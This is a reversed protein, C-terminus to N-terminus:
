LHNTLRLILDSKKGSVPLGAQRLQEKLEVVTLSQLNNMKIISKKKTKITGEESEETPVIITGEDSRVVEQPINDKTHKKKTRNAGEDSSRKRVFASRQSLEAGRVFEDNYYDVDDDDDENNNKELLQIVKWEKTRDDVVISYNEFLRDLIADALKYQKNKRHITRDSLLKTITSKLTTSMTHTPHDLPALPSPVYQEEEKLVVATKEEKVNENNDSSSSSKNNVMGVVSWERYKDDVKVNYRYKLKDSIEDAIHYERKKKAYSRDEVLQSVIRVDNESLNCINGRRIYQQTRGFHSKGDIRYEKRHDHLYIGCTNLATLIKDAHTYNRQRKYQMRKSILEHIQEETLKSNSPLPGSDSAQQYDHHHHHYANNQLQVNNCRIHHYVVINNHNPYTTFASCGVSITAVLVLIGWRTKVNADLSTSM